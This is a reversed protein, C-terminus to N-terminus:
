RRDLKPNAQGHTHNWLHGLRKEGELTTEFYVAKIPQHVTPFDHHHGMGTALCDGPHLQYFKEESVAMGSGALIIWYEDCDHYHCDFNTTKPYDVPDGGDQPSGSTRVEFIGSGGTKEGWRGCMRILFFAEATELVEFSGDKTELEFGSKEVAPMKQGAVSIVGKGQAVILKERPGIQSFSYTGGVPVMQTEFYQMECWEPAFGQGSKFVPM